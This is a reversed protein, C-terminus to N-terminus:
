FICPTTFFKQLKIRKNTYLYLAPWFSKAQVTSLMSLDCKITGVFNVETGNFCLRM